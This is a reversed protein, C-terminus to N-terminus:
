LPAHFAGLSSASGRCKTITSGVSPFVKTYQPVGFSL